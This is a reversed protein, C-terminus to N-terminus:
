RIWFQGSVFLQDLQRDVRLVPVLDKTSKWAKLEGKHVGTKYYLEEEQGTAVYFPVSTVNQLFTGADKVLSLAAVPNKLQDYVTIPNVGTSLEDKTRGAQRRLFNVAARLEDDDDGLGEAVADLAVMLALATTFYAAEAASKKLNQKDLEPLAQYNVGEGGFVKMAKFLRGVARYRGELEAGIGEDWERSGYRAKAFDFAWKKFQLALNGLWHQQLMVKDESSYNGHIRRNVNRMKNTLTHREEASLTFNPHLQLKGNVLEHAEWINSVTGDKGTIPANLMMAIASTAQAQYEGAEIGVYGYDLISKTKNNQQESGAQLVRFHKVMADVKSKAPTDLYGRQKSFTRQVHEAVNTGVDALFAKNAKAYNEKSYFTGGLAEVHQNINAQLFNNVASFPNLAQMTVSTYALVKRVAEGMQSQNYADDGYYNQTLWATFRKETNSSGPDKLVPLGQTDLQPLGDKTEVYYGRNKVAAKVLDMTSELQKLGHYMEAMEGFALLSQVLDTEVEDGALRNRELLLKKELKEKQTKYDKSTKDLAQLEQELREVKQQNQFGGVYYIPLDHVLFGNEDTRRGKTYVEPVLSNKLASVPNRLVNGAADLFGKGKRNVPSLVAARIAPLSGKMGERVDKPIKALASQEYTQVWHEYFALRAKGLASTDQLLKIYKPHEHGVVEVFQRKPFRGRRELVSGTFKKTAPDREASLYTIEDNYFQRLFREYDEEAVGPKKVWQMGQGDVRKRVQYYERAVKFEQTYRHHEGDSLAGNAGEVEARDFRRAREKAAALAVNHARLEPTLLGTYYQKRKGDSDLLAAYEEKRKKEYSPGVRTVYRGTAKGQADTELMWSFDKSGQLAYLKQGLALTKEKLTDVLDYVQQKKLKVANDAAALLKNSSSSTDGLYTSALNLDEGEQVYTRLQEETLGQANANGGVFGVLYDETKNNLLAQVDVLLGNATAVSNRLATNSYALSPQVIDKYTALQHGVQALVEGHLPNTADFSDELFEKIARLDKEAYLLLDVFKGAETQTALEELLKALERTTQEKPKFGVGGQKDRFTDLRKQLRAAVTASIGQIKELRDKNVQIPNPEGTYALAADLLPEGNNEVPLLGREAADLARGWLAYALQTNGDLHAVLDRYLISPQGNPADVRTIECAM